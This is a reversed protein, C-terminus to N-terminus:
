KIIENIKIKEFTLHAQSGEYIIGITDNDVSTICSYGSGSFEDLLVFREAPWTKGDDLSVKLTLQNRKSTSNPNFFLLINKKSGDKTKYVHKYLSAMCVPEPLANRSTTHETWTQGMDRTTAVARGNGPGPLDKNANTRMNLMISGDSLQAAMCETTSLEYAPNGTVWTEGGDKSYTITSFAKSTKDRGQTPFVLTGDDMTFGSGPAPAWLWWEEKKCMRTLNVPKSWTKGNDTSKVILFQATQKIDFGPQSGKNRWQHNWNSSTDTLGETWKGKDDLVGHMWLGAVFINGTKKDVLIAPDSVGNFKEPLGNFTGMDIIKQIPLWTNGKDTSRSLAIDIDGQLDRRSDYRADYVALLDGNLATALGPIRSTHVNDQLSRRVASAVRYSAAPPLGKKVVITDITIGSLGIRIRNGVIASEKVDVGIWIYNKKGPLRFNGNLTLTTGSVVTTGNNFLPAKLAADESLYNSDINCYVKISTIDRLDTTGDLNLVLQKLYQAGSKTEASIATRSILIVGREKIVPITYNRHNLQVDQGTSSHCVAITLALLFLRIVRKPNM